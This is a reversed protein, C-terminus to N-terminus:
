RAHLPFIINPWQGLRDESQPGMSYFDFDDVFINGPTRYVYPSGFPDLLQGKDDVRKLMDCPCDHRLADTMRHNDGEPYRGHRTKYELIARGLKEIEVDVQNEPPRPYMGSEIKVQVEGLTKANELVDFPKRPMVRQEMTRGYSTGGRKSITERWFECEREMKKKATDMSGRDTTSTGPFLKDVNENVTKCFALEEGFCDMEDHCLAHDAEHVLVAAVNILMEPTPEFDDQWYHVKAKPNDFGFFRILSTNISIEVSFKHGFISRYSTEGYHGSHADLDEVIGGEQNLDDLLSAKDRYGAERIIQIARQIIKKGSPYYIEGTLSM